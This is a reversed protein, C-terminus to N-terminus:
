HKGNERDQLEWHNIMGKNSVLEPKHVRRITKLRDECNCMLYLFEHALVYPEVAWRNNKQPLSSSGVGVGGAQPKNNSDMMKKSNPRLPDKIVKEVYIRSSSHCELNGKCHQYWRDLVHESLTKNLLRFAKVVKSYELPLFEKGCDRASLTYALLGHRMEDSTLYGKRHLM